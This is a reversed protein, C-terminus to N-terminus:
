LAMKLAKSRAASLAAAMSPQHSAAALQALRRALLPQAGLTAKYPKASKAQLQTRSPKKASSSDPSSAQAQQHAVRADRSALLQELTIM